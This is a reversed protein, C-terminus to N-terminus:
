LTRWVLDISLYFQPWWTYCCLKNAHMQMDISLQPGASLSHIAQVDASRHCYLLVQQGIGHWAKTHWPTGLTARSSCVSVAGARRQGEFSVAFMCRPEFGDQSHLEAHIVQEGQFLRQGESTVAWHEPTDLSHWKTRLAPHGKVSTLIVACHLHCLLPGSPPGPYPQTNLM